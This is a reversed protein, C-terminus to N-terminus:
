GISHAKRPEMPPAVVDRIRLYFKGRIDWICDAKDLIRLTDPVWEAGQEAFVLKLTPYRELAGGLILFWLPRHSLRLALGVAM